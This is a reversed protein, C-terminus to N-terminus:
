RIIQGKAAQGPPGPVGGGGGRRHPAFQHWGRGAPRFAHVQETEHFGRSVISSLAPFTLFTPAALAVPFAYVMWPSSAVAYGVMHLACCTLSLLVVTYETTFRLLGWLVVTQTFLGLCLRHPRPLCRSFASTRLRLRGDGFFLVPNQPPPAPPQLIVALGVHACACVREFVHLSQRTSIFVSRRHFCGGGRLGHVRHWHM